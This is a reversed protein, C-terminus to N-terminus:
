VNEEGDMRAGCNPCYKTMARGQPEEKCISCYPYYGDPNIEWSGHRVEQVDAAPASDIAEQSYCKTLETSYASTFIKMDPKLMEAEIFKKAM